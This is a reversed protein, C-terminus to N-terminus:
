KNDHRVVPAHLRSADNKATPGDHMVRLITSLDLADNTVEPRAAMEAFARNRQSLRKSDVGIRLSTSYLFM